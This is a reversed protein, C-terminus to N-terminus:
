SDLDRIESITLAEAFEVQTSNNAVGGETPNVNTLREKDFRRIHGKKKCYYCIRETKNNNYMQVTGKGADEHNNNYGKNISLGTNNQGLAKKNKNRFKSKVILSESSISSKTNAKMETERMKLANIIDDPEISQRDYKLADKVNSFSEPISNLLLITQNESSIEEKSNELEVILKQFDDFNENVSKNSLMKFSFLKEKLFAIKSISTTM